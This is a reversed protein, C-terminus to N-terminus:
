PLVLVAAVLKYCHGTAQFPEGLSVTLLVRDTPAIGAADRAYYGDALGRLRPIFVPDTIALNYYEGALNFYCRTKRRGDFPSTTIYWEVGQPEVLALSASAPQQLLTAHAVRDSQNGLLVPGPVLFPALHQMAAGPPLHEVLHWTGPGLLCNEPQHPEPRPAVVEAEVIDLLAAEAGNAYRSESLLTGDARTSVPRIWGRCGVRVGAVCRGGMKWSNALCIFQVNPM